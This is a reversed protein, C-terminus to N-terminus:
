RVLTGIPKVLLVRWTLSTIRAGKIIWGAVDFCDLKVLHREDVLYIVLQEFFDYIVTFGSFIATYLLWDDTM